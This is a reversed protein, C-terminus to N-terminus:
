INVQSRLSEITDKAEELKQQITAHKSKDRDIETKVVSLEDTLSSIVDTLKYVEAQSDRIREM